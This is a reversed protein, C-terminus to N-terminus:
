FHHLLSGGEDSIATAIVAKQNNGLSYDLLAKHLRLPYEVHSRCWTGVENATYGHAELFDDLYTWQVVHGFSHDEVLLSVEQEESRFHQEAAQHISRFDEALCMLAEPTKRRGCKALVELCEQMLRVEVWGWFICQTSFPISGGGACPVRRALEDIQGKLNQLYPAAPSSPFSTADWRLALGGDRPLLFAKRGPALLSTRERLYSNLVNEAPFLASRDAEFRAEPPGVPRDRPATVDWARLTAGSTEPAEEPAPRVGVTASESALHLSIVEAKVSTPMQSAESDQTQNAGDAGKSAEFCRQLTPLSSELSYTLSDQTGELAPDAARLPRLPREDAPPPPRLTTEEERLSDVIGVEGDSPAPVGPAEPPAPLLTQQLDELNLTKEGADVEAVPRHIDVPLRATSAQYSWDRFIEAALAAHLFAVDAKIVPVLGGAVAAMLGASILAAQMNYPGHLEKAAVGGLGFFLIGAAFLLVKLLTPPNEGNMVARAWAGFGTGVDTLYGTFHTTCIPLSLCRRTIGNQIGQSFAFLLLCESTNDNGDGAHEKCYHVMCGAVVAVAAALMNPSYRGSYILECDAKSFGAFFSGLCFTTLLHGFKAAGAMILRGTHSTNGSQHSVTMGMDIICLANVLGSTFCLLNQIMLFSGYDARDEANGQRPTQSNETMCLAGCLAM